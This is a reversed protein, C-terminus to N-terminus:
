QKGFTIYGVSSLTGSMTRSDASVTGCARAPTTSAGSKISRNQNAPLTSNQPITVDAVFTAQNVCSSPQATPPISTPAPARTALPTPTASSATTVNVFIAAQESGVGQANFARVGIIHQGAIAQWTQQLAYSKQPAPANDVQAIGDDVLLEIRTIGTNDTAVSNVVLNQGEYVQSGSAPASITISPKSPAFGSFLFVGVLVVIAVILVALMFLIWKGTDTIM